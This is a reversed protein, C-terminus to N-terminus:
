LEAILDEAKQYRESADKQLLRAVILAVKEPVDQRLTRLAAPEENMISYLVVQEYDGKFPREGTLMEYMIVGLSWLDTRGDTNEGLAQEPSMYAVTGLVTGTKTLNVDAVKALGFDLVKVAGHQTVMVNAPKIDRHVIGAEHARCLGETVQVTYDLAEKIPLPGRAIKQALTEGEYCPMVLFLQADDTEGIDYIACINPHDLASAARAEQMFRQKAEDDSSLSPPLFKLAVMRDLRQDRAKYVLGM